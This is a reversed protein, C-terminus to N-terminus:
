CVTSRLKLLPCVPLSTVVCRLVILFWHCDTHGAGSRLFINRTVRLSMVMTVQVLPFIILDFVSILNPCGLEGSHEQFRWLPDTQFQHHWRSFVDPHFHCSTCWWCWFLDHKSQHVEDHQSNRQKIFRIFSGWMTFDTTMHGYRKFWPSINLPTLILLFPPLGTEKVSFLLVNM